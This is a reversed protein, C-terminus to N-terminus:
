KPPAPPPLLFSLCLATTAATVKAGEITLSETPLALQHFLHTLEAEAGPSAFQRIELTGVRRSPRQRAAPSAPLAPRARPACGWGGATVGGEGGGARPRAPAARAAAM